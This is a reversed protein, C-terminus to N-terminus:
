CNNLVSRILGYEEGKDTGVCEVMYHGSAEVLQKLEEVARGHLHYALCFEESGEAFVSRATDVM